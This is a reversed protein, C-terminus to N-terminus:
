RSARQVRRYALGSVLFVAGYALAAVLVTRHADASVAWLGIPVAGLGAALAALTLSRELRAFVLYGASIVLPPGVVVAAESGAASGAGAVVFCGLLIGAATVGYPVAPGQLGLERERRYYHWGTAAGGVPGACAWYLGLAAPGALLVVGASALTLGGFVVLPFWFAQLDGRAQRRLREVEGLTQAAQRKHM